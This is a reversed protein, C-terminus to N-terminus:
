QVCAIVCAFLAWVLMAAGQLPQQRPVAPPSHTSDHRSPLLLLHHKRQTQAEPKQPCFNQNSLAGRTREQAHRGDFLVKDTNWHIITYSRIACTGSSSKYLM